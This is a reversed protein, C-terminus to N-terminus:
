KLGQLHLCCTEGFRRCRGAFGSPARCWCKAYEPSGLEEKSVSTPLESELNEKLMRLGDMFIRPYHSLISLSRKRRFKELQEKMIM